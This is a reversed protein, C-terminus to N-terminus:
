LYVGGNSKYLCRFSLENLNIACYQRSGQNLHFSRTMKLWNNIPSICIILSSCAIEHLILCYFHKKFLYISSGEFTMANLLIDHLKISFHILGCSIEM